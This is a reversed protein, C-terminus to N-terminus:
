FNYTLYAQIDNVADSGDRDTNVYAVTVDLNGVKTGVTVTIEDMDAAGAAKHDVSTYYLGLDAIGEVNYTATVNYSDTDAASVEGYNWWAETYLKSQAGGLNAATMLKDDISSYAAALALGEYTYGLKVAYANGTDGASQDTYVYQAGLGFGAIEGDAQLWAVNALTPAVYYWAQAAVGSIAKTVAGFAYAGEKTLFSNFSNNSFGATANVTMAGGINSRGIWAAVLTTDVVDNNVIVAADYTNRAINWKETFVMPTDLEQRGVVMTTNSIGDLPNFTLNLIDIWIADDLTHNIYTESVLTDELGM